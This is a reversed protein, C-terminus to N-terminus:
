SCTSTSSFRWRGERTRNRGRRWCRRRGGWRTRSFILTRFFRGILGRRWRLLCCRLLGGGVRKGRQAGIMIVLAPIVMVGGLYKASLALGCAGGVFGASYKSPLRHHVHLALFGVGMAFFLATDEKFYHALEFVQHQTLLLVGVLWFGGWARVRWGLLAFAVVGGAAFVASCWRGVMVLAQERAPTGLGEKVVEATGLMLLPHHFNWKGTILQDVKDPEDPHYFFPFGNDRTDLWLTAAFLLLAAAGLSVLRSSGM